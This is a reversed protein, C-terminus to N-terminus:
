AERRFELAQKISGNDVYELDLGVPLGRALRTVIAGKDKLCDVLFACTAESDPSGGTALLVERIPRGESASRDLRSLLEDVRLDGPGVGSLSSIVGGLVHYLGRYMGTSEITLLDGSTEVVCIQAQDRDPSACIPCPDEDTYNHCVSCFSIEEKVAVLARALATVEDAERGLFYLALRTATKPGLGPLRSLLDVLRTIQPPHKGKYALFIDELFFPPLVLQLGPTL